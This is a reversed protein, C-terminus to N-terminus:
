PRPGLVLMRGSRHALGDRELGATLAEYDESPLTAVSGRGNAQSLRHGPANALARLLAGRATRTRATTPSQRPVPVRQPDTRSPCGRRVPCLDCRPIRAVCIRAGFEMTAHTWTAVELPDDASALGALRDALLQLGRRDDAHVGFRRVFWRRVNTDVAGVPQGFAIAAIARASYAGIGPLAQLGAVTNPWGGVSLSRATRHLLVARRNYGLGSWDALVQAVPADAMATPSPYRDLFPDFRVAIRSAQTQQLMVEAVLVPWPDRTRRFPLDRQEAVFWAFIRERVADLSAATPPAPVPRPYQQVM